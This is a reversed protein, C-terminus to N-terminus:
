ARKRWACALLCTLGFALMSPEPIPTPATEFQVSNYYGVGVGQTDACGWFVRNGLAAALGADLNAASLGNVKQIGDVYLDVLSGTPSGRFEFNHYGSGSITMISSENMLGTGPNYGSLMQATTNGSSDQGLKLIIWQQSGALAIQLGPAQDPQENGGDAKMDNVRLYARMAWGGTTIDALASATLASSGNYYAHGSGANAELDYTYWTGIGGGHSDSAIPGVVANPTQELTWGESTPDTAGSHSAIVAASVNQTVASVAVLALTVLLEMRRTHRNM